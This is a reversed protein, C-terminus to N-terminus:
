LIDGPMVGKKKIITDEDPFRKNGIIEPSKKHIYL